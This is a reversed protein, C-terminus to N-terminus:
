PWSTPDIKGCETKDLKTCGNNCSNCGNNQTCSSNCGNNCSNCGNNTTIVGAKVNVLERGTLIGEEAINSLEKFLDKKM